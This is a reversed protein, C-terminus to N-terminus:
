KLTISKYAVLRDTRSGQPRYYALVNYKNETQYFNGDTPLGNRTGNSHMLLYEYSYYGQKLLISTTYCGETDNYAMKYPYGTQANTWKGNIVVDGPQRPCKLTFHTLIYDSAVDNEVNDSNRIYFCGNADEDYVYNPRPEDPWVYANFHTGDWGVKELGMTTHTPDLTEFKHFENGAPFILSRNHTWKLGDGTIFQPAPNIVADHWFGNKLVVTKIENQYNIVKNGAYGLQFDVQQHQRNVDIDTNTTAGVSLLMTQECIMFCATLVTDNTNDDLVTVRYNGSVAPRCQRNPISFSYHTYLQKTNISEAVEDITNGEAFGDCYESSLLQSSVSWDAECHELSYVYRHYEHTLDDFAINVTEDGNLGIVPMDLWNNGAVVQLSAIGKRAIYNDQAQLSSVAALWAALLWTFRKLM